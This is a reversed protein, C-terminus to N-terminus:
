PQVTAEGGARTIMACFVRLDITEELFRTSADGMVVNMGGPHFSYGEGENSVNFPVGTNPAAGKTGDPKMPDIKFPGLSDAWGVGQANFVLGLPNSVQKGLRYTFPRGAAEVVLFTKTMGDSVERIRTVKDKALMGDASSGGAAYPDPSGLVGAKVGTICDYDTFGLPITVTTIAPRISDSDSSAPIRTISSRSVSAPCVFAAVAKTSIALNSNAAGGVSSDIPGPPTSNSTADWWHKNWNYASAVGKEEMYPMVLIRWSHERGQPNGPPKPNMTAAAKTFCAAPFHKKADHAVGFAIGVQRMNNMCQSRRAAERASQVAPLLLGILTAIIAVVVLLEVLTFGAPRGARRHGARAASGDCHISANMRVAVSPM